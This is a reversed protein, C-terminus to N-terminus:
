FVLKWVKDTYVNNSYGGAIYITNNVAIVSSWSPIPQPLVGISWTDNSIDYIDFKDVDPGNPRLFIIKNNQLVANQGADLFWSTPCFLSDISSSGSNVDSVEVLKSTPYTPAPTTVGGSWYIKENVAIGAFIAKPEALSSTSWTGTTVDYIDIKATVAPNKYYWLSGGGFYIKNNVTVACHGGRKEETLSATSWGGTTLDYIDVRTERNVGSFGGDGGVFLVKNGATAAAIDNGASSLHSVTWTNTSEDYIDVSDVPWTGDSYEGGGFFIKNGATVVAISYREVCLEHTSWSNTVIDYIDIRSTGGGTFIGGTGGAFYIKNNLSGVSIGYRPQSLNGVPVLQANIVPRNSMNCVSMTPPLAEITIEVTDMDFLGGADTVKLEFQYVGAVLNNVQSQVVNINNIMFTSPGSIKTWLYNTINNDPDTSNSGDLTISNLPLTITQDSGANAVPPHNIVPMTDVTIVVTDKASLGDNDTVKLEFQYVGAVLTKARTISDGTRSITFSAPGSIKKWLWVSIRGDPDYSASGDLLISDTPLIIVRDSGAIAIPPKTNRNCGECSVEKKCSIILVIVCIVLLALYLIQKYM